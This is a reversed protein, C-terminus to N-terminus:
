KLAMAYSHLQDFGATQKKINWLNAKGSAAPCFGSGSSPTEQHNPGCVADNRSLVAGCGLLKSGLKPTQIRHYAYMLGGDLGSLFPRLVEPRVAQCGQSRGQKGPGVYSAQHVIIARDYIKDNIGEEVGQLRMARGSSAQYEFLPEILGLSSMHSEPINSFTNPVLSGSGSGHAVWENLLVKATALELLWLRRENAPLSYDVIALRDNSPSVKGSRIACARAEMAFLLAQRELRGGTQKLIDDIKEQEDTKIEIPLKKIQMAISPTQIATVRDSTLNIDQRPYKDTSTTHACGVVMLLFSTAFVFVTRTNNNM